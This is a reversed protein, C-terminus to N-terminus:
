RCVTLTRAMSRTPLTCGVGVESEKQTGPVVSFVPLLTSSSQSPKEAGKSETSADIRKEKRSARRVVWTVVRFRALTVLRVLRLTVQRPLPQGNLDLFTLSFFPLALSDRIKLFLPRRALSRRPALIRM